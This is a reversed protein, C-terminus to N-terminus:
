ASAARIIGRPNRRIAPAGPGPEARSSAPWIRAARSHPAWCRRAWPRRARRGRGAKARQPSAEGDSTAHSEGRCASAPVPIETPLGLHRLIPDILARQDITAVLRLRGGCGPCALADFGFSRAM